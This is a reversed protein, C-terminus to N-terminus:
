IGKKSLASQEAGEDSGCDKIHIRLGVQRDVQEYVDPRRIDARNSTCARCDADMSLVKM